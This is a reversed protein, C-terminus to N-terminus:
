LSWAKGGAEELSICAEYEGPVPLYNLYNTGIEESTLYYAITQQKLDNFASQVKGLVGEKSLMVEQLLQLKEAPKMKKFAKGERLPQMAEGEANKQSPNLYLSLADFSSKYDARDDEKYVSGVMRDIMQDVGVESASPSDTKPLILDTLDRILIFEDQSFFLPEYDPIKETQCGSLLTSILPAGIAAGTALATYKLITRRNM